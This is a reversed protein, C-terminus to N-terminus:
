KAGASELRRLVDDLRAAIRNARSEDLTARFSADFSAAGLRDVFEPTRATLRVTAGAVRGSVSPSGVRDRPQMFGGGSYVGLAGGSLVVHRIALSSATPDIPTSGARPVLFVRLQVIRGDVVALDTGPELAEPSLDTLFVEATNASGVRYVATPLRPSDVVNETSSRVTVASDNVCGALVLVSAVLALRTRM